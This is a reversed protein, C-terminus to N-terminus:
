LFEFTLTFTLYYAGPVFATGSEREITLLYNAAGGNPWVRTATHGSGDFSETARASGSFNNAIVGAPLYIHLYQNLAGSLSSGSIRCNWTMTKGILTYRNVLVNGAAVTWVGSSPLFNAANFPVDQWMGMEIVRNRETIGGAVVIGGSRHLTLVQSTVAGFDDTLARVQFTQAFGVIDFVKTNLPQTNEVFVLQPAGSVYKQNLGTWVNAGNLLPLNSQHIGSDKIIKGTAGNYVAVDGDVAGAPGAVEGPAGTAGTAGTDGKDGKPGIPGQVGQIGQPGQPGIPGPVTSPDGEPGQPGTPGTPGVPGQPGVPGASLPNWVPVWNTTSPDPIAM